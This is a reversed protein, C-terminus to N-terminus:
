LPFSMLESVVIAFTNPPVGSKEMEALGELRVITWPEEPVEAIVMVANLPNEPITERVAVGEGPIPATILGLVMVPEPVAVSVIPVFVVPVNETITVPVLPDSECAVM